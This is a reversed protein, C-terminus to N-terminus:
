KEWWLHGYPPWLCCERPLVGQARHSSKGDNRARHATVCRMSILLGGWNAGFAINLYLIPKFM